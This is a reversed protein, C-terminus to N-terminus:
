GVHHHCPPEDNGQRAFSDSSQRYRPASGSYRSFSRDRAEDVQHSSGTRRYLFMRCIFVLLQVDCSLIWYESVTFMYRAEPSLLASASSFAYRDRPPRSKMGHSSFVAHAARRHNNPALIPCLYGAGSPHNAQAVAPISRAYLAFSIAASLRAHM